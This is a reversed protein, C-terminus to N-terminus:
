QSKIGDQSQHQLFGEIDRWGPSIRTGEPAITLGLTSGLCSARSRELKAVGSMWGSSFLQCYAIIRPGFQAAM